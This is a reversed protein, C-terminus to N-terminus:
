NVTTSVERSPPSKTGDSNYATVSFYYTGSTLNDVVYTAIGPNAVAITKTYKSSSTGYKIDYGALNTLASGNTNRTPPM